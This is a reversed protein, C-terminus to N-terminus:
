RVDNNGDCFRQAQPVHFEEDIYVAENADHIKRLGSWTTFLFIPFVLASAKFFDMTM